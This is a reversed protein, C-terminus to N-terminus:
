AQGCCFVSVTLKNITVTLGAHSRFTVSFGGPVRNFMLPIAALNDVGGTAFFYGNAYPTTLTLTLSDNVEDKTVSAFGTSSTITPAVLTPNTSIEAWLPLARDFDIGIYRLVWDIINGSPNSWVGGTDWTMQLPVTAGTPYLIKSGPTGLSIKDLVDTGVDVAAQIAAKIRAYAQAM